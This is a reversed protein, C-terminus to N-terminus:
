YAWKNTRLLFSNLPDSNVRSFDRRQLEIDPLMTEKESSDLVTERLTSELNAPNADGPLKSSNVLFEFLQLLFVFLEILLQAFSMFLCKKFSSTCAALLYM